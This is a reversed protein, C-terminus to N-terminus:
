AGAKGDSNKMKMMITVDELAARVVFVKVNNSDQDVPVLFFGKAKSDEHALFFGKAWPNEGDIFGLISEQDSFKIYVKHGQHANGGFVKKERYTRDGEFSKVFFLAKLDAIAIRQEKGSDAVHIVVEDSEPSFWKTYGKLVRGDNFRAVVGEGEGTM